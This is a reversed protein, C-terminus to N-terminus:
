VMQRLETTSTLPTDNQDGIDLLTVYYRAM